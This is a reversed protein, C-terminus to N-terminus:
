GTSEYHHMFVEAILEKARPDPWLPREWEDGSSAKLSELDEWVSIVTFEDGTQGLGTGAYRAVLGPESDLSPLTVETAFQALQHATAGPKMRARFVRIIM